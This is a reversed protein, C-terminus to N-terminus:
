KTIGNKKLFEIPTRGYGDRISPDAGAQVLLRACEVCGKRPALIVESIGGTASTLGDDPCAASLATGGPSAWQPSPRTVFNPNARHQLLLSVIDAEAGYTAYWLATEGYTTTANIEAGADLLMKVSKLRGGHADYPASIAVMLPTMNWPKEKRANVDAGADILMRVLEPDASTSLLAKSGQAVGLAVLDRLIGVDNCHLAYSLAEEPDSVPKKARAHAAIIERAASLDRADSARNADAHRLAYTLASGGYLFHDRSKNAVAGLDGGADILMKVAETKNSGAALMLATESYITSDNVGAGQSAALLSKVIADYGGEAAYMLATKHNDPSETPSGSELTLRFRYNIRARPDEGISLLEEVRKEDGDKAARVMAPVEESYDRACGGLFAAVALCLVAAARVIHLRFV